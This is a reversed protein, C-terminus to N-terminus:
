YIKCAWEYFRWVYIEGQIKKLPELELWSQWTWKHFVGGNPAGGGTAVFVM